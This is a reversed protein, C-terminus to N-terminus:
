PNRDLYLCLDTLTQRLHGVHIRHLVREHGDAMNVGSIACRVLTGRACSAFEVRHRWDAKAGYKAMAVVRCEWIRHPQVETMECWFRGTFRTGLIPLYSLEFRSGAEPRYDPVSFTWSGSGGAFVSWVRRVAHELVLETM